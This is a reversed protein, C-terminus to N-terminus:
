GDTRARAHSHPKTTRRSSLQPLRVYQCPQVPIGGMRLATTVTDGAAQPEPLKEFDTDLNAVAWQQLKALDRRLVAVDAASVELAAQQQSLQLKLVRVEEQAKRLMAAQVSLSQVFHQSNAAPTGHGLGCGQAGRPMVANDLSYSASVGCGRRNRARGDSPRQYPPQTEITSTRSSRRPGEQQASDPRSRQRKKRERPLHPKLLWWAHRRAELVAAELSPVTLVARKSDTKWGTVTGVSSRLPVAVSVYMSFAGTEEYRHDNHPTLTFTLTGMQGTSIPEGAAPIHGKPPELLETAGAAAAQAQEAMWQLEITERAANEVAQSLAAAEQEAAQKRKHFSSCSEAEQECRDAEQASTSAATHSPTAFSAAADLPDPDCAECLQTDKETGQAADSAPWSADSSSGAACAPSAFFSLLAKSQKGREREEKAREENTKRGGGECPQCFMAESTLDAVWSTANVYEAALM